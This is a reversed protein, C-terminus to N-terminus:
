LVTFIWQCTNPTRFDLEVQETIDTGDTNLYRGFDHYYFIRTIHLHACQPFAGMQCAQLTKNIWSCLPSAGSDQRSTCGSSDAHWNLFQKRTSWQHDSYVWSCCWISDAIKRSPIVVWESLQLAKPGQENHHLYKGAFATRETQTHKSWRRHM